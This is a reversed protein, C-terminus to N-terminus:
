RVFSNLLPALVQPRRAQTGDLDPNGVRATGTEDIFAAALGGDHGFSIGVVAFQGIKKIGRQIIDGSLAM